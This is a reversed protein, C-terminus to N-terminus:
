YKSLMGKSAADQLNEMTYYQSYTRISDALDSCIRALWPKVRVAVIEAGGIRGVTYIGSDLFYEHRELLFKKAKRSKLKEMMRLRNYDPCYLSYDPSWMYEATSEDDGPVTWYLPITPTHVNVNYRRIKGDRDVGKAYFSKELFLNPINVMEQVRHVISSSNTHILLLVGEDLKSFRGYSSNEGFPTESEETGEILYDAKPGLATCPHTSHLSRRAGKMLRLKETLLGSKSPTTDVHYVPDAKLYAECSGDFPFTPMMVTSQPVAEFVAKIVTEPGDVIHGLGSLMSHICIVAEDQIKLKSFCDVLKRKTTRRFIRNMQKSAFRKGGKPLYRKKLYDINKM